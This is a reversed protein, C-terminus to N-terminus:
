LSGRNKLEPEIESPDCTPNYFSVYIAVDDAYLAADTIECKPFNTNNFLNLSHPIHFFGEM